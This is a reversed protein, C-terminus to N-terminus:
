GYLTLVKGRNGERLGEVGAIMWTASFQGSFEWAVLSLGPWAGDIAPWLFVNLRRILADVPPIFTYVLKLPVEVSPLRKHDATLREKIGKLFGNQFGQGWTGLFGLLSILLLAISAATNLNNRTSM